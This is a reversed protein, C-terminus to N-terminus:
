LLYVLGIILVGIFIFPISGSQLGSFFLGAASAGAVQTISTWVISERSFTLKRGSDFAVFAAVTVTSLLYQALALVCLPLLLTNLTTAQGNATAADSTLLSMLLGYLSAAVYTSIIAASTTFITRRYDDSRLSSMLGTVAALLTAPAVSSAPEAWYLMVALFVFAEAISKQSQSLGDANTVSVTFRSALLTLALLAALFALGTWGLIPLELLSVLTHILLGAALAAVGGLLALSKWHGKPM